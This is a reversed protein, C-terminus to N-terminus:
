DDIAGRAPLKTNAAQWDQYEHEIYTELAGACVADVLGPSRVIQLPTAARMMDKSQAVRLDGDSIRQQLQSMVLICLNNEQAFRLLARQATLGPIDEATILGIAQDHSLNGASNAVAHPSVPIGAACILLLFLLADKTADFEGLRMSIRLASNDGLEPQAKILKRMFASQCEPTTLSTLLERPNLVPCQQVTAGWLQPVQNAVETVLKEIRMQLCRANLSSKVQECITHLDIAQAAMAWTPRVQKRSPQLNPAIRRLEHILVGFDDEVGDLEIIPPASEPAYLQSVESPAHASQWHVQGKRAYIALDFGTPSIGRLAPCHKLCDAHNLLESLPLADVQVAIDGRSVNVGVVEDNITCPGGSFGHLATIATLDDTISIKHLKRNGGPLAFQNVEANLSQPQSNNNPFGLVQLRDFTAFIQNRRIALVHDPMAIKLELVAVDLIDCKTLVALVGVKQSDAWHLTIGSIEHLIKTLCHLATIACNPGILWASGLISTGSRLQAVKGLAM